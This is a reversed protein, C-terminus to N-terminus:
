ICNKIDSTKKHQEQRVIITLPNFNSLVVGNDYRTEVETIFSGVESLDEETFIYEVEAMTSDVITCKRDMEAGTAKNKLKLWVEAKGDLPEIVGDKKITMLLQIGNDYQELTIKNPM